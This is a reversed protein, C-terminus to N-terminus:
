CECSTNRTSVLNAAQKLAKPVPCSPGLNFLHWPKHVGAQAQLSSPGGCAAGEVGLRPKATQEQPKHFPVRSAPRPTDPAPGGTWPQERSVPRPM